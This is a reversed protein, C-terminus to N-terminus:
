RASFSFRSVDPGRGPGGADRRRVGSVRCAISTVARRSIIREDPAMSPGFSSISEPMPGASCRRSTPM